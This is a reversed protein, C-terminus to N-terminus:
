AIKSLLNYEEVLYYSTQTMVKKYSDEGEFADIVEQEERSMAEYSKKGYSPPLWGKKQSGFINLKKLLELNTFEIHCTGKKYFTITFYRLPIKKTQNTKRAERLRDQLAGENSVSGNLYDLAKEMDSLKKLVKYSAPDYRGMFSWADYFPLIVKKNIIWCKNTKWGNYYHINKSFENTYSYQYSLEDFLGIICDEIWKTLNKSMELQITYINYLSFDYDALADVKKRYEDLLNSTMGNTFRSDQFLATWYKNRVSKVYDNITFSDTGNVKLEILPSAYPNEQLSSMLSPEMAQYERILEIGAQVELEYRKVTAKVFDNICLGTEKEVKEDAYYAAKLESFIRSTKEKKPIAVKIVAVEVSTKREAQEFAGILFSIDAQYSELQRLLEQRSLSYPNRITEANLICIIGGGDKQMDLAKLLHKDGNSFPPNMVILDYEKYTHFTLFDDHVVRYGNGKLTKQLDSDTEICDIDLERSYRYGNASVNGHEMLYQVIDGKGASPELVTHIDKWEMGAFIKELLSTPTPYFENNLM